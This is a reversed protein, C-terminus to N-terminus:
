KAVRVMAHRVVASDETRIFGERIVEIIQDSEAGECEAHDVAEHLNPDFTKGLSEMSCIGMGSLVQLYQNLTMRVGTLFEETAGQAQLALTLQDYVPLFAAAASMQARKDASDLEARSHRRHRDFERMLNQYRVESETLQARLKDREKWVNLGM